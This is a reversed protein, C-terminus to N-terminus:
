YQKGASLSPNGEPVQSLPMMLVFHRKEVVL